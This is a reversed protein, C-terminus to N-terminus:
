VGVVVCGWGFRSHLRHSLQSKQQVTKLRVELSRRELCTPWTDAPTRHLEGAYPRSM